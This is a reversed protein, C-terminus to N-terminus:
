HEGTQITRIIEDVTFPKSLDDKNRVVIAQNGDGLLKQVASQDVFGRFGVVIVRVQQALLPTVFRKLQAVDKEALADVLLVLLKKDRSQATSDTKFQQNAQQLVAVLNSGPSTHMLGQLRSQLDEMGRSDQLRQVVQSQSGYQLLGVQTKQASVLFQKSVSTM